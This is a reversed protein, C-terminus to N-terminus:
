ALRTLLEITNGSPDRVYLSRTRGSAADETREEVVEVRHAALHARLAAEDHPGIALCLHDVNRGGQGAPDAWAGAPDAADVLDIQSAGANLEVMGYQPLRSRVSCGLAREYFALAAEMGRVLILVHDIRELAFPPGPV